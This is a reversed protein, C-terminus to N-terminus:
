SKTIGILLLGGLIVVVLLQGGSLGTRKQLDEYAAPLGSKPVPRADTTKDKPLVKGYAYATALNAFKELTAIGVDRASWRGQAEPPAGYGVDTFGPQMSGYVPQPRTIQTPFTTIDIDRLSEGAM